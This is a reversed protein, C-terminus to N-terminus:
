GALGQSGGTEWAWPVPTHPVSVAMDSRKCPLQSNWSLDEKAVGTCKMLMRQLGKERGGEVPSQVQSGICAPPASGVGLQHPM